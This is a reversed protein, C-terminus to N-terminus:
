SVSSSPSLSKYIVWLFFYGHIKIDAGMGERLPSFVEWLVVGAPIIAWILALLSAVLVCVCLPNQKIPVVICLANHKKQM